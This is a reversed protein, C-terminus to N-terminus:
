ALVSKSLMMNALNRNLLEVVKFNGECTDSWVLFVTQHRFLRFIARRHALTVYESLVWFFPRSNGYKPASIKDGACKETRTNYNLKTKKEINNFVFFLSHVM